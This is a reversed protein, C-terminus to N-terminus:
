NEKRPNWYVLTRGQPDTEVTHELGQRKLVRVLDLMAEHPTYRMTRIRFGKLESSVMRTGSRFEKHDKVIAAWQEETLDTRFRAQGRWKKNPKLKM